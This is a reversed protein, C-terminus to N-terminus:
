SIADRFCTLHFTSPMINATISLSLPTADPTASSAHRICPGCGSDDPLSRSAPSAHVAIDERWRALGLGKATVMISPSNFRYTASEHSNFQELQSSEKFHGTPQGDTCVESPVV